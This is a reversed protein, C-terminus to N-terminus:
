MLTGPVGSEAYQSTAMPSISRTRAAGDRAPMAQSQAGALGIEVRHEIQEGFVFIPSIEDDLRCPAIVVDGDGALVKRERPFEHLSVKVSSRDM